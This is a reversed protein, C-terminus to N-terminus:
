AASQSAINDAKPRPSRTRKAMDSFRAPYPNSEESRQTSTGQAKLWYPPSFRTRSTPTDNASGAYKAARNLKCSM